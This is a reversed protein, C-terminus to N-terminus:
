SLYLSIQSSLPVLNLLHVDAFLLPTKITIRILDTHFIADRWAPHYLVRAWTCDGEIWFRCNQSLCDCAGFSVACYCGTCAKDRRCVRWVRRSAFRACRRQRHRLGVITRGETYWSASIFKTAIKSLTFDSIPFSCISNMTKNQNTPCSRICRNRRRVRM